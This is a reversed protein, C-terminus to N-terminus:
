PSVIPIQAYKSMHLSWKSKLLHKSGQYAHKHICNKSTCINVHQLNQQQLIQKLKESIKNVFANKIVFYKGKGNLNEATNVTRCIESQPKFIPFIALQPKRNTCKKSKSMNDQLGKQHDLTITFWTRQYLNGSLQVVM